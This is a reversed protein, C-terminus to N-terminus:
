YKLSNKIFNLKEFPTLEGDIWQIEIGSKEMKRFWTMQRKAFAHIGSRLKQYMDNKNLEGLLHQTIFKYELGYFKLRDASIGIELLSEVEEIMSEGEIRKDLRENIREKIRERSFQLGFIQHKIKPYEREEITHHKEYESIEIARITRKRNQSDSTNHLPRLSKLIEDLEQESKDELNARLEINEPVYTLWYGKIVAELYLGSGGCLIVKKNRDIINQYAKVFDNQYEYVNYESGADVIDILHYPIKHGDIQYENLDKGTGVDMGRYVQRSDASIIEAHMDKALHTSLATKGSATPGLITIM